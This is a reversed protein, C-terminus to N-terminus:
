LDELQKVETENLGYWVESNSFISNLFLSERLLLAMKFYHPGFSVKELMNMIETIIGLGKGIRSSITKSNKGDVSIVDGLYTDEKVRGILTGHVM